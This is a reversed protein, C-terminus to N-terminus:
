LNIIIVIINRTTSFINLIYSVVRMELEPCFGRKGSTKNPIRIYTLPEASTLSVFIGIGGGCRIYYIYYIHNLRSRRVLVICAIIHPRSTRGKRASAIDGPVGLAPIFNLLRNRIRVAAAAAGDTNFAFATFNTRCLKPVAASRRARHPLGATRERAVRRDYRM